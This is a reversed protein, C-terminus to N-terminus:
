SFECFFHLFFVNGTEGDFEWGHFPCMLCNKKVVGNVALNAGLHPCFASLVRPISDEGRFLAYEAGLVSIQKVEGKKLEASRSIFFWGNPFPPPVPGANKLRKHMNKPAHPSEKLSKSYAIPTFLLDDICVGFVLVLSTILLHYATWVEAFYYYCICILSIITLSHRSM